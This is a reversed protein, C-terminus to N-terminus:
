KRTTSTDFDYNTPICLQMRTGHHPPPVNVISFTAAHRNRQNLIELTRAILRLGTGTDRGTRKVKGPNYGQGNDTVCLHLMNDHLEIAIHIACEDTLTPFAHKLANEVPIQLSISPVLWQSQELQPTVQWTVRPLPGKSYHHLEVYHRVLAIEDCLPVAVKGSTLLNGRLVDILLEVPTVLEPYRQLKPLVTGLVNFIYHPSVRNRVIDMRLETIHQMQRKIREQTRRRYTVIILTAVLALMVLAGIILLIFNQQRATKASYDALAVQQHLLTTDRQYREGMETVNNRTQQSNLTDAYRNAQQLYHYARQWMGYRAAYRQLRRYHLMLYRPSGTALASDNIARLQTAAKSINGEALSLDALLSKIYFKGNPQIRQMAAGQCRNLHLRAQPLKDQMLYVEGMNADCNILLVKDNFKEALQRAKAFSKLAQDYQEEYYYCNGLSFHYFFQTQLSEKDIHQAAQTFFKHAETYNELEMYVQGLGSCISARSRTDHLSDCLFLAYRYYQAARPMKGSQMYIDALNITVAILERGKPPHNLLTFAREYCVRGERQKGGMIANVGRHNWLLGEIYHNGTHTHCWHQVRAYHHAARLTDGLLQHSTGRFVEAKYWSASDTLTGQLAALTSDAKAPASFMLDTCAAIISDAREAEDNHETGHCAAILSCSLLTCVSLMIHHTIHQILQLTHKNM